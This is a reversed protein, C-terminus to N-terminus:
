RSYDTGDSHSKRIEKWHYIPRVTLTNLNKNTGGWFMEGTGIIYCEPEGCGNRYESKLAICGDYEFLKGVELDGLKVNM